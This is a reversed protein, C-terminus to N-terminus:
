LRSKGDGPEIELEVAHDIAEWLLRLSEDATLSRRPKQAAANWTTVPKGRVASRRRCPFPIIEATKTM